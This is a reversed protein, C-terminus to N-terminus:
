LNSTQYINGIVTIHSSNLTYLPENYGDNQIFMLRLNDWAVSFVPTSSGYNKKIIDGEFIEVGKSDKLGTFRLRAILNWRITFDPKEVKGHEIDDLTYEKTRIEGTGDHKWIYRFKIERTNSKSEM